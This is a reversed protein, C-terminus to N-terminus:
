FAPFVTGIEIDGRAPLWKAVRVTRHPQSCDYQLIDRRNFHHLLQHLSPTTGAPSVLFANEPLVVKCYGILQSLNILSLSGDKVEVFTLLCAGNEEVIGLLDVRIKYTAYAPFYQRVQLPQTVFFDSLDTAHVDHVSVQAQPHKNRLYRELWVLMSPYLQIEQKPLVPM